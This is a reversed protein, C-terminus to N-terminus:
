CDVDSLDRGFSFFAGQIPPWQMPTEVPLPPPPLLRGNFRDGQDTEFNRLPCGGIRSKYLFSESCKDNKLYELM